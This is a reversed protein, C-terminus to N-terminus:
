VADPHGRRPLGIRFLGLAILLWGAVETQVAGAHGSVPAHGDVAKEAKAAPWPQTFVHGDPIDQGPHKDRWERVVDPVFPIRTGLIFSLGSAQLAIQNAESIMGADAVVAVDTL